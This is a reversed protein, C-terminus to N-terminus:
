LPFNNQAVINSVSHCLMAAEKKTGRRAYQFLSTSVELKPSRQVSATTDITFICKAMSTCRHYQIVCAATQPDITMVKMQTITM